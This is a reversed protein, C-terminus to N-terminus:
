SAEREPRRSASQSCDALSLPASLSFPPPAPSSPPPSPLHPRVQNGVAFGRDTMAEPEEGEGEVEGDGEGGPCLPLLHLSPSTATTSAAAAIDPALLADNIGEGLRGRRYEMEVRAGFSSAVPRPPKGLCSAEKGLQPWLGPARGLEPDGAEGMSGKGM